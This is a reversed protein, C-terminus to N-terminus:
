LWAHLLLVVGALLTCYCAIARLLLVVGAVLTHVKCGVGGAVLTHVAMCYRCLVLSVVGAVCCWRCVFGVCLLLSSPM